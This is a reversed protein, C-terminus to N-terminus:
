RSCSGVVPVAKHHRSWWTAWVSTNGPDLFGAQTEVQLQNQTYYQNGNPTNLDLEAWSTNSYQSLVLGNGSSCDRTAARNVDAWASDDDCAPRHVAYWSNWQPQPAQVTVTVYVHNNGFIGGNHRM